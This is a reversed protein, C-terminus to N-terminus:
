RGDWPHYAFGCELLDDLTPAGKESLAGVRKGVYAGPSAVAAKAVDLGVATAALKDLVPLALAKAAYRFPETGSLAKKIRRTKKRVQAAQDRRHRDASKKPNSLRTSPGQAPPSRTCPAEDAQHNSVPQRVGPLHKATGADTREDPPRHTPPLCLEAGESDDAESAARRDAEAFSAEILPQLDM